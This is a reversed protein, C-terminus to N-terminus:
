LSVVHGGEEDDKEWGTEGRRGVKTQRVSAGRGGLREV